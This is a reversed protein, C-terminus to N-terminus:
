DLVEDYVKLLTKKYLKWDYNQKILKFGNNGLDNDSDLVEKIREAFQEIKDEIIINHGDDYKIGEAGKSTSIVPKNLAMYELIKFRTGSGYRLPAICIDSNLIHYKIDDVYGLFKVNSPTNIRPPNKGIIIFKVDDDFQPAIQNCILEVADRNPTYSLLGVFLVVPNENKVPKNLKLFSEYKKLDVCNPIITIKDETGPIEKSILKSDRKSCVLITKAAKLAKIEIRKDRKSALRNYITNRLDSYPFNQFEWYVNHEDLIFNKINKNKLCHYFYPSEIQFVTDDFEFNEFAKKSTKLGFNESFLGHAYYTISDFINNNKIDQILNIGDIKSEYEEKHASFVSTRFKDSALKAIHFTRHYAGFDNKPYLQDNHLIRLEKM